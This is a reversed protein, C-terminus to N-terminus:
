HTMRGSFTQVVITAIREAAHGDWLEPVRGRKGGSDLIDRV